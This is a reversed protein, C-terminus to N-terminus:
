YRLNEIGRWFNADDRDAGWMGLRAALSQGFRENGSLLGLLGLNLNSRGTDSDCAPDIRPSDAFGRMAYEFGEWMQDRTM